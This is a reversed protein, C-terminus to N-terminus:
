NPADMPHCKCNVEIKNEDIGPIAHKITYVISNKFTDARGICYNIYYTIWDLVAKSDHLDKDKFM